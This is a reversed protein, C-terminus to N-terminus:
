TLIALAAATLALASILGIVIDFRRSREAPDPEHDSSPSM